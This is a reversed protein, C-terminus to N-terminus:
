DCMGMEVVERGEYYVTGAEFVGTLAGETAEWGGDFRYLFMDEITDDPRVERVLVATM